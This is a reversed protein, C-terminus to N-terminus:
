KYFGSTLFDDHMKKVLSKWSPSTYKITKKLRTSDLSRNIEISDEPIIATSVKYEKAITRLLNYKSIPYTSAQYLGSISKNPLIYTNLLNAFELTTFGSFIAKTYGKVTKSKTSIFWDLLSLNSGLEHGIISTRLTLHNGYNIEGLYKSMGYADHCTAIDSEQYATGKKGDFVCDTAITIVKSKIKEALAALKHPFLSNIEITNLTSNIDKNQKIIGICNIIVTPELTSLVNNVSELKNAYIQDIIKIKYKTPLENNFSEIKTVTGYTDIKKNSSLVEFVKHGLMGSAGLVLVKQM